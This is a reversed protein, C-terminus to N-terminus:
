MLMSPFSSCSFYKYYFLLRLNTYTLLTFTNDKTHLCWIQFIWASLILNSDSSVMTIRFTNHNYKLSYVNTQIMHIIYQIIYRIHICYVYVHIHIKNYMYQPLYAFMLISVNISVPNLNSDGWCYQIGSLWKMRRLTLQRKVACLSKEYKSVNQDSNLGSFPCNTWFLASVLALTPM